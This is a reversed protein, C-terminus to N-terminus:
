GFPTEPASPAASAPSGKANDALQHTATNFEAPRFKANGAFQSIATGSLYGAKQVPAATTIASATFPALAFALGVVPAFKKLRTM